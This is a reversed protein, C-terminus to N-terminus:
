MPHSLVGGALTDGSGGARSNSDNDSIIAELTSPSLSQSVGPLSMAALASEEPCTLHLPKLTDFSPKGALTAVPLVSLALSLESLSPFWSEVSFNRYMCM